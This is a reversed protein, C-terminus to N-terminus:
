KVFSDQINIFVICQANNVSVLVKLPSNQFFALMHIPTVFGSTYSFVILVTHTVLMDRFMIIM